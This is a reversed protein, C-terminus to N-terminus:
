KKDTDFSRVTALRHGAVVIFTLIFSIGVSPLYGLAPFLGDTQNSLIDLVLMMFFGSVLASSLITLVNLIIMLFFTFVAIFIFSASNSMTLGGPM